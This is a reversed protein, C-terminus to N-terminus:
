RTVKSEPARIPPSVTRAVVTVGEYTGLVQKNVDDCLISGSTYHITVQVNDYKRNWIGTVIKGKFGELVVVKDAGVTCRTFTGDITYSDVSAMVDANDRFVATDAASAVPGSCMLAVTIVTALPRMATRSFIGM